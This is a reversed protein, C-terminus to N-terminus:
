NWRSLFTQYRLSSSSAAALHWSSKVHVLFFFSDNTKVIFSPVKSIIRFCFYLLRIWHYAVFINKSYYWAFTKKKDDFFKISNIPSFYDKSGWNKRIEREKVRVRWQTKSKYKANFTENQTSLKVVCQWKSPAKKKTEWPPLLFLM